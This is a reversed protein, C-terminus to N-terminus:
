SLSSPSSLTSVPLPSIQILERSAGFTDRAAPLPSTCMSEPSIPSSDIRVPLPWTRASAISAPLAASVVALADALLFSLVFLLRGHKGFVGSLLGCFAYAMTYFPAGPSAMDVALGLVTGVAAGTLIGGKMATTMVLLLALLRGVSVTDLFVLRSLTMLVCASLVM